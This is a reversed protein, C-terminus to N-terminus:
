AEKYWEEPASDTAPDYGDPLIAEIGLIETIFVEILPSTYSSKGARDLLHDVPFCVLEFCLCCDVRRSDDRLFPSFSSLIYFLLLLHDVIKM